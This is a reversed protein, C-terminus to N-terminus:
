RVEVAMKGVETKFPTGMKRAILYRKGDAGKVYSVGK